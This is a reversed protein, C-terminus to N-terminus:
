DATVSSLYGHQNRLSMPGNVKAWYEDVQIVMTHGYTAVGQMGSFERLHEYESEPELQFVEDEPQGTLKSFLRALGLLYEQCRATELFMHVQLKVYKPDGEPLGKFLEFNPDVEVLPNESTSADPRDTNRYTLLERILDQHREQALPPNVTIAIRSEGFFSVRWVFIHISTLDRLVRTRDLNFGDSFGRNETAVILSAIGERRLLFLLSPLVRRDKELEPYTDRISSWNDIVLRIKWGEKRREDENGKIKLRTQAERILAQVIHLFVAGGLHHIELRRCIVHGKEPHSERKTFKDLAGEKLGRHMGLRRALSFSDLTKTTLLIAAGKQSNPANPAAIAQSLFAKSLKSKGAADEGILVAPEHTPLGRKVNTDKSKQNGKSPEKLLMEDLHRIGFSACVIEDESPNLPNKGAEGMIRRQQAHLSPVVAVYAQHPPRKRPGQQSIPYPVVPDDPNRFAGTTSGRGTRMLLNHVGRVHGVGRVKDIEIVRRLYDEDREFRLQIVLDSVFEEPNRDNTAREVVLVVHCKHAASRLIRAVRSRRDLLEGHADHGSSMVELGEIADIILMHRPEDPESKSMIALLRDLFGWDDGMTNQALDIFKVERTSRSPQGVGLKTFVDEDGPVVRTLEICDKKALKTVRTGPNRFPDEVRHEPARLAFDRWVRNARDYSLDTSAYWVHVGPGADACYRAALHMAMVSKGTGDSGLICISATEEADNLQFGRPRQHATEEPQPNILRDLSPIGFRLLKSSTTM